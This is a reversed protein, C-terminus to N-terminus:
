ALQAILDKWTGPQEASEKAKKATPHAAGHQKGDVLIVWGTAKGNPRAFGPRTWYARQVVIRDEATSYRIGTGKHTATWIAM